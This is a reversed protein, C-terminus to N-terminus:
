RRRALLIWTDADVTWGRGDYGGLVDTLRFRARELRPALRDLPLTRFALQFRRHIRRHGRREIFEEDFVTLRRRPDQRVTEILKVTGGDPSPGQLRVERRYERWRPLDPVLDIALLGGRPLVRAAEALTADLDRDGLVSQLIGYAALVVGFAGRPFPLARIDGRVLAPRARRPLRVARAAARALMPRSRDLGTARIGARALPVLVRGTGRGLELLPAREALATQRWFVVDRRGVTRANEWDYYAAYDDWGEWGEPSM